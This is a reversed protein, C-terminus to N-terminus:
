LARDRAHFSDNRERAKECGSWRVAREWRQQRESERASERERTRTGGGKARAGGSECM